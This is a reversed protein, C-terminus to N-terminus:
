GQGNEGPFESLPRREERKRIGFSYRVNVGYRQNDSYRQGTSRIRGQDLRFRVEMTRLIDNASLTIHLKKDLFTRNLGLNLQGFNELEYFQQQGRYMFFGNMTLRTDSGLRLNHFTFFRWSGRTFTLPQQEYIGSYENLNYQAGVVFFYVGGPPIAGIVRLYTERNTGLNDFTRVAVQEELPDQYIVSSFIDETLNRGVAFLPTDDFSVNFEVNSTFQPRLAPNGTEYLYPDVYKIYPNLSQYGPRNITRRYIAYGRLDYGAIKFLSRSLFIYPFLDLRNVTFTTDGPITQRGEMYTHEARVGAKLLINSSGLTRSGQVYAAHIHESYRFANTRQADPVLGQGTRFYYDAASRYRQATGKLGSELKVSWPLRWSLDTQFLFFHRQQRNEGEGELLFAFPHLLRSAYDQDNANASLTYAFRTDWERGLSDESFRLGIEQQLSFFRTDNDIRNDNESLLMQPGGLVRTQNFTGAEQFSTNLRADYNGEWRPRLLRSGGAALYAQQAPVRSIAEQVLLSDAALLRDSRWDERANPRSYNARLYWTNKDDSDNFQFGAFQNGYVGQNMGASISGTRGIRVGKQLVVNVIGGSSSADYKTSPTRLIEIRQISGPPLSRLVTAMDQASMRQERGNIFVTAPTTSNLYINGDQDVFVGPTKELIELSHTSTNALPEPDIITKDEEQRILPRRATVTVQELSLASESLQYRQRLLGEGIQLTKELTEYGIYRIQVQYLGTELGDFRVVGKEEVIASLRLSDALRLLEVTAGLPVETRSLQITLELSQGFLPVWAMWMWLVFTVRFMARM